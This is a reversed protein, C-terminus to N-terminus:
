YGNSDFSAVGTRVVRYFRQSNANAANTETATATNNTATLNLATNTTWTNLTGSVNVQYSGGEVANWTLTVNGANLSPANLLSPLNTAGKFYLTLPTDSNMVTTTSSGGTPSGAYWRGVNYPYTPTGDAKLTVFYAWTGNPYDPTVCYRANYKNLDFFATYSGVTNTSGQTFGLDGLYDYDEAYHGLTYTLTAPGSGSTDNTAPGFQGSTLTISKGQALAAWAPLTTRSTIGLNTTGYSGDRLVFGSIMRRVGSGANTANSYGYPGYLPLGDNLWGIIPSHKLLVLNTNESYIKTVPDYNVNDGLLYRVGIPNAHAHYQGSPQPHNLAYDFSGMENPWADRNWIGDGQGISGNPTADKSNGVSYSYGDSTNYIAVGDVLFGISNMGTLTKSNPSNTTGANGRPFRYVNTSTGQNKPLNPNNWPGMIFSSLGSSRIYAWNTSYDIEHVGAYTPNPYQGSNVSGWTTHSIGATRNAANTYIRAYKGSNVTFWSTIIPDAQATAACFWGAALLFHIRSMLKM